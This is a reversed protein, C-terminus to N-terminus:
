YTPIPTITPTSTPRLAPTPTAIIITPAPTPTQTPTPTLTPTPTPETTPTPSVTGGQRRGLSFAILGILFIILLLALTLLAIRRNSSM